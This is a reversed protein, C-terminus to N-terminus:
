CSTMVADAAPSTTVRFHNGSTSSCDIPARRIAAAPSEDATFRYVIALTITSAVGFVFAITWADFDATRIFLSDTSVLLMGFGALAWGRRRDDVM